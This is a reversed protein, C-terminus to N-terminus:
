ADRAAVADGDNARVGSVDEAKSVSKGRRRSEKKGNNPKKNPLNRVFQVEAFPFVKLIKAYDEPYRQKIWVLSRHWLDGFSRASGAAVAERGYDPPLAIGHQRIYSYVQSHNWFALPWFRGRKESIGDANRIMANREVSDIAKEGTAIWHAGTLHRLYIDYDKVKLRKVRLSELRPFRFTEEKFLNSLNWHPLRIIEISFRRELYRLYREQFELGPVLFMFYGVVRDFHECCLQLAAVSDKGGSVGCIVSDVGMAKVRRVVEFPDRFPTKRPVSVAM